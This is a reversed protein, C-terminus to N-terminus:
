HNCIKFKLYLIFFLFIGAILINIKFLTCDAFPLGAYYDVYSIVDCVLTYYLFMRHYLCFKFVFSSVYLFLWPLISLGGILSFVPLDLGLYSTITNTLYLAAITMPIVKLLWIEAKYLMKYM